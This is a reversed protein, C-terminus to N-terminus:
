TSSRTVARTELAEVEAESLAERDLIDPRREATRCIAQLRRWRAVDRHNGNILVEPVSMGEFVRPRTYWPCDLLGDQFSDNQASEFNGIAGPLLRVVTDVLVMAPLEGGSLVYDGITIEDDIYRCRIREDIGRYHGCVLILHPELSLHNALRQTLPRGEPTLFITRHPVGAPALSRLARAIPEPRFVMGGGGGYPTDDTTHRKDDTFDRLNHIQIRVVGSEGAKRVISHGFPGEFMEPFITLIDIKM